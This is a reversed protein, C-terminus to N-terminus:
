NTKMLYTKLPWSDPKPVLPKTFIYNLLQQQDTVKAIAAQALDKDDSLTAIDMLLQSDNLQAVKEKQESTIDSGLTVQLYKKIAAKKVQADKDNVLDTLDNSAKLFSLAKLRVSLDNDQRALTTLVQHDSQADIAGLRVKADSHQWKPTFLNKLFAAM